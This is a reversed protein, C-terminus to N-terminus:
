FFHFDFFFPESDREAGVRGIGFPLRSPLFVPFIVPRPTM